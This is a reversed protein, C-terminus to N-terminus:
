TVALQSSPEVRQNQEGDDPEAEDPELNRSAGTAKKVPVAEPFSNYFKRWLGCFKCVGWSEPGEASEILWYHSCNDAYAREESKDKVKYVMM